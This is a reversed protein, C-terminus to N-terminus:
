RSATNALRGRFALTVRSRDRGCVVDARTGDGAAAGAERISRPVDDIARARRRRGRSFPSGREAYRDPMAGALGAGYVITIRDGAAMPRGTVRIGLLQQDLTEPELKLEPDSGRVETYGREDPHTVQPTSWDWFPSVQLYVM